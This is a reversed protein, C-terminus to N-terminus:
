SSTPPVWEIAVEAIPAGTVEHLPDPEEDPPPAVRFSTPESGWGHLALSAKSNRDFVGVRLGYLGPALPLDPLHIRLVVTGVTLRTSGPDEVVGGSVCTQRDATWVMLALDIADVEVASVLELDIDTPRRPIVLDDAQQISISRIQVPDSDAAATAPLEGGADPKSLPQSSSPVEPPEEALGPSAGGLPLGAVTGLYAEVGERAPGLFVTEGERLVLVQECLAQIAFVSHAVLVLTGGGHLHRQLHEGCKRQFFIDGVALAEDIVLIDPEIGAVVSYGLRMRMGQSYHRVPADIFEGIDAFDIAWESIAEVRSRSLGAHAASASINERGTLLPDLNASPDLIAGISGRVDISGTDPRTIGCLLRLLTSKGSGNHGLIGFARGSGVAFEIGHVAWFEGRRLHTREEEDRLRLEDVLDRVGYRRSLKVNSAYKKSLDRVEIVPETM